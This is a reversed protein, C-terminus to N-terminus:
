RPTAQDQARLRDLRRQVQTYSRGLLEALESVYGLVGDRGAGGAAASSTTTEVRHQRHAEWIIADEEPTFSGANYNVLPVTHSPAPVAPVPKSQKIQSGQRGEAAMLMEARKMVVAPLRALQVGLRAGIKRFQKADGDAPLKGIANLLLQDEEETFNRRQRGPTHIQADERHEKRVTAAPSDGPLPQTAPRGSLNRPTASGNAGRLARV